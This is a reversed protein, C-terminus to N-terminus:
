IKPHFEYLFVAQRYQLATISSSVVECKVTECFAVASEWSKQLESEPTLIELKHREAIYRQSAAAVSTRTVFSTKASMFSALHGESASRCGVVVLMLAAIILVIFTHNTAREPKNM